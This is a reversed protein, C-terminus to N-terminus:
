GTRCPQAEVCQRTDRRDAGDVSRRGGACGRFPDSPRLQDHFLGPIRGDSVDVIHIAQGLTEGTPLYGDTEVTFSIAVPMGVGKAARVIGIAEPTNTMTAASVMDAGAEAFIEVQRAHFAM